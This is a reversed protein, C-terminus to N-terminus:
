EGVTTKPEPLPDYGSGGWPHCRLLRRLALWGGRFVGFREIAALTYESCTPQYRCNAGLLPSIVVQYGRILKIAARRALQM